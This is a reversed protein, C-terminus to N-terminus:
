WYVFQMNSLLVFLKTKLMITNPLSEQPLWHATVTVTARVHAKVKQRFWCISPWQRLNHLVSQESDPLNVMYFPHVLHSFSQTGTYQPLTVLLSFSAKTKLQVNFVVYSMKSNAFIFLLTAGEINNSRMRWFYPTNCVFSMRVIISSHGWCCISLLDVISAISSFPWLIM